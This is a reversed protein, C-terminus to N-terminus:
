VYAPALLEHFLASDNRMQRLIHFWERGDRTHYGVYSTGTREDIFRFLSRPKASRNLISTVAIVDADTWDKESESIDACLAQIERVLEEDERLIYDYYLNNTM